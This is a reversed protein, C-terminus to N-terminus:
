GSKRKAAIRGQFHNVTAIVSEALETTDCVRRTLCIANGLITSGTADVVAPTTPNVKPSIGRPTM